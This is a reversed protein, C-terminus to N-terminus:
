LAGLAKATAPSGHVSALFRCMIWAEHEAAIEPATAHGILMIPSGERAAGVGTSRGRSVEATRDPHRAADKPGSERVRPLGGSSRKVTKGAGRGSKGQPGEISIPKAAKHRSARGAQGRIRNRYTLDRNQEARGESGMERHRRQAESGNVEMLNPSSKRRWVTM